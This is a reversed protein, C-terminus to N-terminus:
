QISTPWLASVLPLKAIAFHEDRVGVELEVLHDEDQRALGLRHFHIYFGFLVLVFHFLFDLLPVGNPGFGDSDGGAVKEQSCQVLSSALPSAQALGLTPGM